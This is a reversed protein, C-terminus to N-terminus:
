MKDRQLAAAPFSALGPQPALGCTIARESCICRGSPGGRLRTLSPSAISYGQANENECCPGAGTPDAVAKM